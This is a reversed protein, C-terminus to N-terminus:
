TQKSKEPLRLLFADHDKGQDAAKGDQHRQDEGRHVDPTVVLIADCLLVAAPVAPSSPLFVSERYAIAM